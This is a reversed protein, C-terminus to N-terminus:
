QTTGETSPEPTPRGTPTEPLPPCVVGVLVGAMLPIVPLHWLFDFASHVALAGMAGVVGAWADPFGGGTRGRVLVVAVTVLLALLLGLGVLGLEVLVQLYENHAYVLTGTGGGPTLWQLDVRGPGGGVLPHLGVLHAAARFADGRYSSDVSARVRGIDQVVRAAPGLALAVAVVVLSAAGISAKAWRPAVSWAHRAGGWAPVIAVAGGVLLGGAALVPRPPTGTPMSPLLAALGLVAGLTPALVVRVVDRPGALLAVVVLGVLLSLLGARSLTAGAGVLLLSLAAALGMNRPRATLLSVTLLALPVLVAATANSYTLTSSARWLGEGPLAWPAHHFAIGVWGSAALAVGIAVLGLLVTERSATDLRRGILLVVVVGLVLSSQAASEGLRGSTLGRALDWAILAGAAVVPPFRLDAASPPRAVLALVAAAAVGLVLPRRGDPFYGGQAFFGAALGLLLLLGSASLLGVQRAAVPLPTEDSRSRDVSASGGM